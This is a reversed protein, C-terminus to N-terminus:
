SIRKKLDTREKAVSGESLKRGGPKHRKKEEKESKTKNEVVKRKEFSRTGWGLRKELRKAYGRGEMKGRIESYGGIAPM